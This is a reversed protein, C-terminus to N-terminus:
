TCVLLRALLFDSPGMHTNKFTYPSEDLQATEHSTETFHNTIEGIAEEQSQWASRSGFGAPSSAPSMGSM